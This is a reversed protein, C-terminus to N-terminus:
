STDELDDEDGDGCSSEIDEARQGGGAASLATAAEPGALAIFCPCEVLDEKAQLACRLAASGELGKNDILGCVAQSTAQAMAAAATRDPGEPLASALGGLMRGIRELASAVAIRVEPGAHQVQSCIAPLVAPLYAAFGQGVAAAYAGLADIAAVREEYAGTRVAQRRGGSRMMEAGDSVRLADVAAPVVQPLHAAFQEFSALAVRAFFGHASARAETPASSDILSRLAVGVLEDRAPQFAPEEWASAVIAGAADLSAALVAPTLVSAPAPMSGDSGPGVAGSCRGRLFPLLSAATAPALPAFHDAAVSAAAGLATLVAALAASGASVMAAAESDPSTAVAAAASTAAALSNLTRLLSEVVSRLVASAEDTSFEQLIAGVAEACKRILDPEPETPLREALANLLLLFGETASPSPQLADALLVAGECAAQRVWVTGDVLARSLPVAWGPQAERAGCLAFIVMHVSAARALADPSQAAERAADLVLPLVRSADMRAFIRLCERAGQASASVEDLDDVSPADDKAARCVVPIAANLASEPMVAPCGSRALARLVQLAQAKCQEACRVGTGADLIRCALEASAGGLAGSRLAPALSSLARLAAALVKPGSSDANGSLVAAAVELIADATIQWHSLDETSLCWSSAAIGVVGFAAVRVGADLDRICVALTRGIEPYHQHLRAGMSDILSALLELAARQHVKSECAILRAVLQILEGWLKDRQVAIAQCLANCAEGLARLVPPESCASYCELMAAQLTAADGEPIVRWLKPLRWSLVTAALQRSGPAPAHHACAMLTTLFTPSQSWSDLQAEAQSRMSNDPSQLLALVRDVEAANPGAAGM